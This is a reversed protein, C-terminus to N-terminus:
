LNKQAKYNLYDKKIIDQLNVIEKLKVRILDNMQTQPFMSKIQKLENKILIPRPVKFCQGTKEIQKELAKGLPSYTFKAEILLQYKKAQLINMNILKEVHYHQYKQQKETLIKNASKIELIIM